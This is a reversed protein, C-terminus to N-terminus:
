GRRTGGTLSAYLEDFWDATGAVDVTHADALAGAALVRHVEPRMAQLIGEALAQPSRPRTLIGNHRHRILEPVGGVATSVVPVGAAIAEMVVVPM